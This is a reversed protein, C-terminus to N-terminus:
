TLGTRRRAPRTSRTATTATPAAAHPGVSGDTDSDGEADTAGLGAEGLGDDTGEAAAEATTSVDGVNGGPTV